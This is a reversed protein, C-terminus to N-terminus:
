DPGPPGDSALALAIPLCALSTKCHNCLPRDRRLGSQSTSIAPYNGTSFEHSPHSQAPKVRLSQREHTPITVSKGMKPAKCVHFLSRWDLREAPSASKGSCTESGSRGTMKALIIPPIFSWSRNASQRRMTSVM